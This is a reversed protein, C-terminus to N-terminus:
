ARQLIFLAETTFTHSAAIQWSTGNVLPELRRQHDAAGYPRGGLSRAPLSVAIRRAHLRQALRPLTARDLLELAPLVKLLLALDYERDPLADLLSAARADCQVGFLPLADALFAIQDTFIDVIDYIAGAALPMWPIGLPHLGCGLDLVSTVPAAEAFVAAAFSDLFPLRERTSAHHTMIARCQTRLAIPDDAAARLEALWRDYPMRAELFAGGIQHLTNKAAKIADSLFPYRRAAHTAVEAIVGPAITRYRKSTLVAAIVASARGDSAM